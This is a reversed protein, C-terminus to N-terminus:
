KKAQENLKIKLKRKSKYLPYLVECISLVDEESYIDPLQKIKVAMIRPDTFLNITLEGGWDGTKWGDSEANILAVINTIAKSRSILGNGIAKVLIKAVAEVHTKNQIFPNKFSRTFIEEHGTRASDQAFFWKKAEKDGMVVGSISKVEIVFIGKKCVVLHAIETLYNNNKASPIVLGKFLFSYDKTEPTFVKTKLYKKM